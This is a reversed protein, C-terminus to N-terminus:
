ANDGYFVLARPPITLRISKGNRDEVNLENPVSGVGYLLNMRSGSDYLDNDITVYVVAQNQHHLNIACLIEKGEFIRSCAIVHLFHVSDRDPKCFVIGDESIPRWYHSGLQMIPHAEIFAQLGEMLSPTEQYERWFGDLATQEHTPAAAKTYRIIEM